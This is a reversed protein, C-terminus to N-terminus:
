RKLARLPRDMNVELKVLIRRSWSCLQYLRALRLEHVKKLKQAGSTIQCDSVFADQRCNGKWAVSKVKYGMSISPVNINLM